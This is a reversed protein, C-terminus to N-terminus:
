LVTMHYEYNLCIIEFHLPTADFYTNSTVVISRNSHAKILVATSLVVAKNNVFELFFDETEFCKSDLFRWFPVGNTLKPM